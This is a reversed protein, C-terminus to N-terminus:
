SKDESSSWITQFTIPVGIDDGGERLSSSKMRRVTGGKDGDGRGWFEAVPLLSPCEFRACPFEDGSCVGERVCLPPDVVEGTVGELFFLLCRPWAGTALRDCDGSAGDVGFGATVRWSGVEGGFFFFGECFRTESGLLDQGGDTAAMDGFLKPALDITSSIDSLPSSGLAM